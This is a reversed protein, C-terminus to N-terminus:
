KKRMFAEGRKSNWSLRGKEQKHAWNPVTGLQKGEKKDIRFFFYEKGRTKDLLNRSVVEKMKEGEKNKRDDLLHTM